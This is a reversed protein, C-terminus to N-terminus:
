NTSCQSGLVSRAGRRAVVLSRLGRHVISQDPSRVDDERVARRISDAALQRQTRTLRSATRGATRGPIVRPSTADPDHRGVAEAVVNAVVQAEDLVRSRVDLGTVDGHEGVVPLREDCRPYSRLDLGFRSRERGQELDAQNAIFWGDSGLKDSRL